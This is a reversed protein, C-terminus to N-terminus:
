RSQPKPVSVEKASSEGDCVMLLRWADRDESILCMGEPKVGAADPVAGLLTVQGESRDKGPICDGGNWWYFRCSADGDGVPGALILFGDDVAVLDRIGRGDLPVFKLQYHNVNEFEFSLVPVFNERLVPGRFGVFLRGSKVAIGEADIGNEKSPISVYPQLVEDAALIDQLSIADKTKLSGDSNLTIRFLGYSEEHPAVNTLRKRNKEYAKEDDVKKRRLSHSGVIYLYQGDSAVGEMDIEDNSDSLLDVKSLLEYGDGIRQLVNFETGEDPCAVLLKQWFAVGSLEEGYALDGSLKLRTLTSPQEGSAIAAALMLMATAPVKVLYPNM